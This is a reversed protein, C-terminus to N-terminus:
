KSEKKHKDRKANAPTNTGLAEPRKSIQEKKIQNDLNNEGPNKLIIKRVSNVSDSTKNASQASAFITILSFAIVFTLSQIKM